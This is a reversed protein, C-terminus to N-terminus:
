TELRRPTRYPLEDGPLGFRLRMDHPMRARAGPSHAALQECAFLFQRRTAEIDIGRYSLRQTTM